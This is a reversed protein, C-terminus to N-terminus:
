NYDLQPVKLGSPSWEQHSHAYQTGKQKFWNKMIPGLFLCSRAHDIEAGTGHNKNEHWKGVCVLIASYAQWVHRWNDIIVPLHPLIM